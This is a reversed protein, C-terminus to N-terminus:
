RQAHCLCYDFRVAVVQAVDFSTYCRYSKLVVKRGNHKGEWIDAFRGAAMPHGGVIEVIEPGLWRCTSPLSSRLDQAM